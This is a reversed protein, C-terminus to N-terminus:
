VYRSYFLKKIQGALNQLNPNSASLRGTKTVPLNFQGHLEDGVWGLEEHRKLMGTYYTSDLKKLESRKLILEIIKKAKGKAKLKSLVPEGVSYIRQFPRKGGSALRERNQSILYDESWGVTPKTETRDLPRVMQRLLFGQEAWRERERTSGDKLIRTYKERYPVYITGGYLLCSVHDDSAFNIGPVNALKHLEEDIKAMEQRTEEALKAAEDFRYRLGNREARMLYLIDENQLRLLSHIEKRFSVRQKKYLEWTLDVDHACYEALVDWPIADTQIGAAWYQSKVVDLKSPLAFRAASEDLSPFVSTQNSLIFEGLQCDFVRRIHLEPVYNLIWHLDFKINFGIVMEAAQLTEAIRKLNEGFPEGGYEIPIVITPQENQKLGVCVLKNKSDFPNGDNHITTEVDFTVREISQM